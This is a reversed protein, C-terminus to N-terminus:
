QCSGSSGQLAGSVPASGVIVSGSPNGPPNNYTANVLGSGCGDTRLYTVLGQQTITGFNEIDLSWVVKNTVDKTEPPHIFTGYATFQGAAGYGEFVFGGAPSLSISVLKQPRACSPQVLLAAGVAMLVVVSFWKGKM